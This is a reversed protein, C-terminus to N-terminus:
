CVSMGQVDTTAGPGMDKLDATGAEAQEEPLPVEMEVGGGWKMGLAQHVCVPLAPPSLLPGHRPPPPAPTGAAAGAAGLGRRGRLVSGATVQTM